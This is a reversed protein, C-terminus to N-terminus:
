SYELAFFIVIAIKQESIQVSIIKPQVVKLIIHSVGGEMDEM